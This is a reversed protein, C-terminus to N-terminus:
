IEEEKKKFNLPYRSCIHLFQETISGYAAKNNPTRLVTLFIKVRMSDNVRRSMKMTLNQSNESFRNSLNVYSIKSFSSSLM